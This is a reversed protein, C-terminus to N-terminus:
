EARVAEGRRYELLNDDRSRILSVLGYCIPTDIAAIVLKVLYQGLMMNLLVSTPVTGAFAISIFILTDIGQSVLTSANNRFWLHRGQTRRRWFEFAFVDHHQSVLYALMSALVIRPVSGLIAEYANQGEWFSVPPIIQGVYLLLVTAANMAFGLWIIRSTIRRGYLEAITDTILFTLPYAVVAVPVVFTVVTILKVAMINAVLLLACFAMSLSVLTM